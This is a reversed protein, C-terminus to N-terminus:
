QSLVSEQWYNNIFTVMPEISEKFESKVFYGAINEQYASALDHDSNSTTLVFIVSHSLQEDSRVERLFELGGMVPMNLDLLIIFPQKFGTGTRLIELAEIGNKGRTVKNALNLRRFGRIVARADIDDDEVLLVNVNKNLQSM